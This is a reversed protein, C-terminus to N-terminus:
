FIWRRWFRQLESDAIQRRNYSGTATRPHKSPATIKSTLLPYSYPM